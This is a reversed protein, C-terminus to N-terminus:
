KRSAALSEFELDLDDEEPQTSPLFPNNAADGHFGALASSSASFPFSPAPGFPTMTASSSFSTSSPIIASSSPSLTAAPTGGSTIAHTTAPVVAPSVLPSTLSTVSHKKSPPASLLITSPKISASTATSSPVSAPTKAVLSSSNKNKDVQSSTAETLPSAASGGQGRAGTSGGVAAAKKAEKEREWNEFALNFSHSVSLTIAQATKKKPCLFAHCEMTDNDNNRAIFAFVKSHTSDNTCFSVRYISVEEFLTRSTESVETM